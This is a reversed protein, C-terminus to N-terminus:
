SGAAYEEVAGCTCAPNRDGFVNDVRGVAPWNKHERLWPAPYAAQERSYPRVWADAAVV